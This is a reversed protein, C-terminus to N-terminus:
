EPLLLLMKRTGFLAAVPPRIVWNPRANRSRSM